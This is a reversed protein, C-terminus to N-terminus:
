LSVLDSENSTATTKMTATM